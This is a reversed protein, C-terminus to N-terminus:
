TAALGPALKLQAFKLVSSLAFFNTLEIAGGNLGVARGLCDGNERVTEACRAIVQYAQGVIQKFGHARRALAVSRGRQKAITLRRLNRLRDPRTSASCGASASRVPALGIRVPARLFGGPM